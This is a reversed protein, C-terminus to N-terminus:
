VFARTLISRYVPPIRIQTDSANLRIVLWVGKPELREADKAQKSM